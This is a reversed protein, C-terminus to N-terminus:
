VIIPQTIEQRYMKERTTSKLVSYYTESAKEDLYLHHKSTLQTILPISLDKKIKNLYHKGTQNMGLLRIYPVTNFDNVNYDTKLTNTLIHTFMRQLRTWTYRKTKVKNMLDEFCTANKAFRKIRNQIGEDVGEIQNLQRPSMTMIRYILFPFYDDWNHWQGSKEKYDNLQAMTEPPFTERVKNTIGEASLSERISTASAIQNTIEKDHFDNNVRKITLPDINLNYDLITKVYSFGLINNPKFMDVQKLGIVDYALDSAMPYSLGENLHTQIVTNFEDKNETYLKYAQTFENIDGSESGFCINSVDLENLTLVAGKGFNESSQVAYMYPLEVVLDVGGNLAAKARHFKDIIAPEGRQLFPGSMIAIICKAQSTKRAENVHYQHGNHFPNYEVIVGCAKM